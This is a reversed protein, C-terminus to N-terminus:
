KLYDVVIVFCKELFSKAIKIIAHLHKVDDNMIWKVSRKGIDLLCMYSLDSINGTAAIM